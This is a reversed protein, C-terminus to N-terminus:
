PDRTGTYMELKVLRGDLGGNNLMVRKSSRLGIRKVLATSGLYIWALSGSCQQKLFDGIEKIMEGDNNDLRMGYPPNSIITLDNLPGCDNFDSCSIEIRDGFPLEMANDLAANVSDSDIDSGSILNMPLPRIEEGAKRKIKDWLTQDFDPLCEFGFKERKYQAPIRCYSMMAEILLTGSGCMPDYLPTEGDWGSHRIVAASLTERMPAEVTSKRYGRKHGAGAGLDINITAKNRNIFLNLWVDPNDTDVSPRRDYKEMFYDALSDKLRRAAFQSHKINSNGVNAFIAFTKDPDLIADWDMAMAKDYLIDEHPCDFRHLPALIRSSLRSKYVINYLSSKNAEFNIGRYDGEINHAGLEDLEAMGIEICDEPLQSFYKGNKVYRFM